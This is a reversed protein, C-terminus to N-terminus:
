SCCKGSSRSDRRIRQPLGRSWGKQASLDDVGFREQSKVLVSKVFADLEVISSAESGNDIWDLLRDMSGQGLMGLNVLKVVVEDECNRGNPSSTVLKCPFKSLVFVKRDHPKFFTVEEGNKIPLSPWSGVNKSKGNSKVASDLAM